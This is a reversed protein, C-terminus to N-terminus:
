RLEASKKWFDEANKVKGLVELNVGFAKLLKLDVEPPKPLADSVGTREGFDRLLKRLPGLGEYLRYACLLRYYPSGNTIAERILAEYPALFDYQHLGWGSSIANTGVRFPLILQHCLPAADGELHLDLRRITL